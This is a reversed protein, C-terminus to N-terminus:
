SKASMTNVREFLIRTNTVGTGVSENHNPHLKYLKYLFIPVHHMLINKVLYSSVNKIPKQSKRLFHELEFDNEIFKVKESASM